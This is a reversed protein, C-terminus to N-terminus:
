PQAKSYIRLRAVASNPRSGGNSHMIQLDAEQTGSTFPTSDTFTNGDILTTLGDAEAYQFRHTYETGAVATFLADTRCVQAGGSDYVRSDEKVPTLTAIKLDGAGATPDVRWLYETGAPAERLVFTTEIEGAAHLIEGSGFVSTVTPVVQVRSATAGSTPIYSTASPSQEVQAGWIYCDGSDAEILFVGSTGTTVTVDFRQWETTLSCTTTAGAGSSIRIDVDQPATAAKMFLSFTHPNATTSLSVRLDAGVADFSLLDATTTGDPATTDNSTVTYDNGSWSADSFDESYTILNTGGRENLMGLKSGHSFNADYVYAYQGSSFKTVEVGSAGVGTIPAAVSARDYSDLAAPQSTTTFDLDRLLDSAAPSAAPYHKAFHSYLHERFHSAFM